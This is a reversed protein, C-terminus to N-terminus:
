NTQITIQKPKASEAKPLTIRLIGDHYDACVKESEVESPLALIRVFKGAARENRHVEEPKVEKGSTVKEGSITVKNRVVSVSLTATEIGPALAEAYFNDRDESLNVLPYSRAHHGPLFATTVNWGNKGAVVEEFAKDVKRRLSDFDRFLGAYPDYFRNFM